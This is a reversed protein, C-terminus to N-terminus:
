KKIELLWKMLLVIQLSMNKLNNLRQIFLTKEKKIDM